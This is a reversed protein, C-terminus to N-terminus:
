DYLVIINYYLLIHGYISYKFIMYLNNHITYVLIDKYIMYYFM